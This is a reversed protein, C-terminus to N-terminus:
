HCTEDCRHGPANHGGAAPRQSQFHKFAESDKIPTYHSHHKKKHDHTHKVSSCSAILLLLIIYRM